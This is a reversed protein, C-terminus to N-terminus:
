NDRYYRRVLPNVSRFDRFEGVKELKDPDLNNIQEVVVCCIQGNKKFYLRTEFKRNTCVFFHREGKDFGSYLVHPKLASSM